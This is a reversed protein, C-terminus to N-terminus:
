VINFFLVDFVPQHQCASKPGAVKLIEGGFFFFFLIMRSSDMLDSDAVADSLQSLLRLAM